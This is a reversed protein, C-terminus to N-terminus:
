PASDIRAIRPTNNGNIFLWRGDPVGDTMSLETHHTDDWPVMGYSTELLARTQDTYGYGKEPYQSFV